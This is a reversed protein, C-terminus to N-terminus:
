HDGPRRNRPVGATVVADGEILREGPEVNTYRRVPMWGLRLRRRGGHKPGLRFQTLHSAGRRGVLEEIIFLEAVQGISDESLGLTEIFPLPNEAEAMFSMAGLPNSEGLLAVRMALETLDEPSRGELGMDLVNSQGESAHSGVLTVNRARSTSTESLVTSIRIATTGGTWTIRTDSNRGYGSNPRRSELNAAVSNDKILAKVTVQHGDDHISTARFITNGVKVWPCISEAALMRLRREVAAALDDPSGYSGTTNFVRIEDRFDRQRGDQDDETSWVCIRLGRLVATDYETHTASYGTKLPRGYRSGLIGIYIDSAAVQGQYAAEPDDDMGGFEEFRIPKAGVAVIGRVAADREPQMGAMVSSVFASQGAAWSRVEAEDPAPAPSLDVLLREPQQSM